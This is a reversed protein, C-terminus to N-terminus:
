APMSVKLSEGRNIALIQHPKIRDAPCSFNFYNEFKHSNDRGAPKGKDKDASKAKQKVEATTVTVGFRTRFERVESMIAEHKAILHSMINKIGDEVEQQNKLGKESPKILKTLNVTQHGYLLDNAAPELGLKQAREYLSGKSAPKYLVSLHELEELSKASRISRSIEESLLKEKELSKLLNQSKTEILKCNEITNKIERLKLPTMNDILEKRYRCLFPITFDEEFLQVITKSLDIDIDEIESV